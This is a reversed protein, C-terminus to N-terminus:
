YCGSSNIVDVQWAQVCDAGVDMDLLGSCGVKERGACM